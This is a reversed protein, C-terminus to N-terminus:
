HQNGSFDMQTGCFFTLWIQIFMLTLLHQCFTYKQTFQGKLPGYM